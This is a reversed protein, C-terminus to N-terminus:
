ASALVARHRVKFKTGVAEVGATGALTGDVLALLEVDTKSEAKEELYAAEDAPDRSNEEPYTRLFDTQGHTLNFIDHVAQGDERTGSRLVCTKGNKLTTTKHYLM